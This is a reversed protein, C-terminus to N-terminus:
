LKYSLNLENCIKEIQRKKVETGTNVNIYIDGLTKYSKKQITTKPIDELKLYVISKFIINMKEEKPLDGYKKDLVDKIFKYFSLAFSKENYKTGNVEFHNKKIFLSKYEM